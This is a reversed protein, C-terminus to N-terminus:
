QCNACFGFFELNHKIVKFNKPTNFVEKINVDTVGRCNLCILHHHHELDKLEYRKKRDGFFVEQILGTDVFFDLDRYITTKNVKIKKLLDSASIPYAANKFINLIQSRAKTIVM